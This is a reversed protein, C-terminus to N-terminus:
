GATGRAGLRTSVKTRPQCRAGADPSHQRDACCGLHGGRSRWRPGARQTFYAAPLLRCFHDCPRPLGGGDSSSTGDCHHRRTRGREGLHGRHPPGPLHPLAPGPSAETDPTASDPSRLNAPFRGGRRRNRHPGFCEFFPLSTEALRGIREVKNEVALTNARRMPWEDDRREQASVTGPHVIPIVFRDKPSSGLFIRFM